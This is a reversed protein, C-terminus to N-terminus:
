LTVVLGDRQRYEQRSPMGAANSHISRREPCPRAVDCRTKLELNRTGSIPFRVTTMNVPGCRGARQGVIEGSWMAADAASPM